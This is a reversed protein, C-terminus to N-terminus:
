TTAYIHQARVFHKGPGVAGGDSEAVAARVSEDVVVSATAHPGVPEVAESQREVLIAATPAHLIWLVKM